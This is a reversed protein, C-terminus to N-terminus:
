IPSAMARGIVLFCSVPCRAFCRATAASPCRRRWSRVSVSRAPGSRRASRCQAPLSSFSLHDMGRNRRCGNDRVRGGICGSAVRASATHRRSVAGATCYGCIRCYGHSRDHRSERSTNVKDLWGVARLLVATHAVECMRTLRRSFRHWMRMVIAADGVCAIPSAIM